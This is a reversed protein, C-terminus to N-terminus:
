RASEIWGGGVVEEGRYAVVAQGPAVATAPEEFTVHCRRGGIEAVRGVVGGHRYRVRLRMREAPEAASAVWRWDRAFLEGAEPRRASVVVRRREPELREVYLPTGTAVGLGRRQGVTFGEIGRHGGLVAGSRDVIEGAEGGRGRSAVFAAADGFCLDQSEPKEAVPLGLRRAHRRVEGKGLDGLPFLTRELQRQSLEFLFYSQDRGPDLGQLLQVAGGSRRTRAYHGTAVFDAGRALAWELLEGLKFASNCAVCPNPTRGEAYAAVFPTVVLRGFDERRDVVAHPIGLHRAVAAAEGADSCVRSRDRRTSDWLRLSAGRVRYGAELLLGAAVSSDVGGSMAVVVLPAQRTGESRM